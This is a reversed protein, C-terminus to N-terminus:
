NIWDGPNKLDPSEPTEAQNQVKLGTAQIGIWDVPNHKLVGEERKSRGAQAM